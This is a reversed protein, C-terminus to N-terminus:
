VVAFIGEPLKPYKYQMGNESICSQKWFCYTQYPKTDSDPWFMGHKARPLCHPAVVDIFRVRWRRDVGPLAANPQIRQAYQHRAWDLPETFILYRWACQTIIELMIPPVCTTFNAWEDQLPDQVLGLKAFAAAVNEGWQNILGKARRVDKDIPEGPRKNVLSLVHQDFMVKMEAEYFDTYIAHQQVICAEACGDGWLHLLHFLGNEADTRLRRKNAQDQLSWGIVAICITIVIIVAQELYLACNWDTWFTADAPKHLLAPLLTLVSATVALIALALVNLVLQGMTYSNGAQM